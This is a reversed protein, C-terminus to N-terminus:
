GERRTRSKKKIFTTKKETDFENLHYIKYDKKFGLSNLTDMKTIEYLNNNVTKSSISNKKTLDNKMFCIKKNEKSNKRLSEKKNDIKKILIM